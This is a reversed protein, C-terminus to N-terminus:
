RAKFRRSSSSAPAAVAIATESTVFTQEDNRDSFERPNLDPVPFCGSHFIM